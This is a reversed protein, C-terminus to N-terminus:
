KSGIAMWRHFQFSPYVFELCGTYLMKSCPGLDKQWESLSSVTQIHTEHKMDTSQLAFNTQAPLQTWWKLDQMHECSTNILLDKESVQSSLNTCDGHYFTIPFDQIKWHDLVKRSTELAQLDLECLVLSQFRLKGRILLMWPLLGYWSGYIYVKEFFQNAYLSELNECLWIKSKMQGDSFADMNLPLTNM